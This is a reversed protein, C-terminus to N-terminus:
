WCNGQSEFFIGLKDALDKQQIDCELVKKIWHKIDKPTLIGAKRM